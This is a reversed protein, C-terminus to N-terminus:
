WAIMWLSTIYVLDSAITSHKGFSSNVPILVVLYLNTHIREPDRSILSAIKSELVEFTRTEM